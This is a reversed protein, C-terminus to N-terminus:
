KEGGLVQKSAELAIRLTDLAAEGTVEPTRNEKIANLIDARDRYRKRRDPNNHDLKKYLKLPTSDRYHQYRKDGFPIWKGKPSLADYKKHKVKSKRFKVM